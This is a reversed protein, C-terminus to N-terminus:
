DASASHKENVTLLLFGGVVFFVVMTAMGARQSSFIDTTFALAAPGLFATAKGSFAYLGFMETRLDPPAMRAMLTRSAAQAPGVFVGLMLGFIWFLEKTEIFLILTSLITLAVISIIITKKSGVWDDIWAFTAAGIGSTVNIAIGFQILETFTFGFTGAAYIGGFAFLTNLGDTYIMRALLYRALDKHHRAQKLTKILTRIGSHVAVGVKVGTPKKDPTLFFLPMSFTLFWLAVLLTTARINAADIKDVGFWPEETQVFGILALSLCCLGGAYGAGWSWGSIRGIKKNPAIDPLMSNYFVVGAEFAFNALGAMILAMLVYNTDPRAFWLCATAVVAVITFFFLWPKRPGRQDAIAGLVPLLVAVFIASVSMGYGWQSTGTIEDVAIGQTFYTGFIFTIIVTPFASNAWDYLAWSILGKRNAFTSPTRM